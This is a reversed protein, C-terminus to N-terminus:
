SKKFNWSRLGRALGGAVHAKRKQVRRRLPWRWTARKPQEQKQLAGEAAASPGNEYFPFRL